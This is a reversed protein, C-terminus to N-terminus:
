FWLMAQYTDLLAALLFGAAKQLLKISSQRKLFFHVSLFKILSYVQHKGPGAVVGLGVSQSVRGFSDNHSAQDTLLPEVVLTFEVGVTQDAAAPVSALM